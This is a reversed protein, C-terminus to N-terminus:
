AAVAPLAACCLALLIAHGLDPHEAEAMRPEALLVRCDGNLATSITPRLPEAAAWVAELSDVPLWGNGHCGWPAKNHVNRLGVPFGSRCWCERRLGPYRPVTDTGFCNECDEDHVVHWDDDQGHYCAQCAAEGREENAVLCPCRVGLKALWHLLTAKPVAVPQMKCVYCQPGPVGGVDFDGHTLESCEVTLDRQDRPAFDTTM